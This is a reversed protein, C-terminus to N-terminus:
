IETNFTIQTIPPETIPQFDEVALTKVSFIAYYTWLNESFEAKNLQVEKAFMRWGAGNPIFGILYRRLLSIMDYIGINNGLTRLRRSQVSIIINITEYQSVHMTSQPKEYESSHYCVTIKGNLFPKEFDTQKEPLAVTTFGLNEFDQLRTVIATEIDQIYNM